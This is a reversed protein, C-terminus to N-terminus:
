LQNPSNSPGSMSVAGSANLKKEVASIVRNELEEESSNADTLTSLVESIIQRLEGSGVRYFLTAKRPDSAIERRAFASRLRQDVTSVMDPTMLTPVLHSETQRRSALAGILETKLQSLSTMIEAFYRDQPNASEASRQMDIALSIPSAMSTIGDRSAQMLRQLEAKAEEVSDLDQNDFALTKVGALDFPIRQGRHIMQVYPKRHAHRIALEYFVNPNHDTLDAVVMADDVIHQIVYTTILGSEAIQDARVAAFGLSEAVPKIIYKLVQDSRKRTDSGPEGIPAIVFCSNISKVKHVSVEPM